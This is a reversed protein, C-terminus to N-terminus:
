IGENYSLAQCRERRASKLCECLGCPAHDLKPAWQRPQWHIGSCPPTSRNNLTHTLTATKGKKNHPCLWIGAQAQHASVTAAPLTETVSQTVSASKEAKHTHMTATHLEGKPSPESALPRKKHRHSFNGCLTGFTHYSRGATNARGLPEQRLQTTRQLVRSDGSISSCYNVPPMHVVWNTPWCTCSTSDARRQCPWDAARKTCVAARKTCRQLLAQATATCTLSAM